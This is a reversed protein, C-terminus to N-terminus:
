MKLIKIYILIQLIKLAFFVYMMTKKKILNRGICLPLDGNGSIIGIKNM